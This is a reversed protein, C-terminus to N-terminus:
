DRLSYEDHFTLYMWMILYSQEQFLTEIIFLWNCSFIWCNIKGQDLPLYYYGPLRLILSLIGHCVCLCLNNLGNSMGLVSQKECSNKVAFIKLIFIFVKFRLWVLSFLRKYLPNQCKMYYKSLDRLRWSKCWWWWVRTM